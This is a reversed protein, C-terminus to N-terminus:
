TTNINNNQNLLSNKNSLESTMNELKNNLLRIDNLMENENNLFNIFIETLWFPNQYCHSLIPNRYQIILNHESAYEFIKLRLKFSTHFYLYVEM